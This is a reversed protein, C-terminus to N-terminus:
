NGPAPDPVVRVDLAAPGDFPVLIEAQASRGEGYHVSLHAPGPPCASFHVRHPQESPQGSTLRVGGEWELVALGVQELPQGTGEFLALDLAVMHSAIEVPDIGLELVSADAAIGHEEVVSGGLRLELRGGVNEAREFLVSFYVGQEGDGRGLALICQEHASGDAPVFRASLLAYLALMQGERERADGGVGAHLLRVELPKVRRLVLEVPELPPGPRLEVHLSPSRRGDAEAFLEWPGPALVVPKWTGDTAVQMKLGAGGPGILSVRVGGPLPQKREDVVRGRLLLGATPNPNEAPLVERGGASPESTRPVAASDASGGKETGPSARTVAASATDGSRSPRLYLWASVAVMLAVAIAGLAAQWARGAAGRHGCSQM